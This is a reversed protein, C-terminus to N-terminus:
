THPFAKDGAATSYKQVSVEALRFRADDRAERFVVPEELGPAFLPPVRVAPGRRFDEANGFNLNGGGLSVEPFARTMGKVVSQADVLEPAVDVGVRVEGPDRDRELFRLHNTLAIVLKM